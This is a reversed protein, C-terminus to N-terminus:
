PLDGPIMVAVNSDSGVYGTIQWIREELAGAYRLQADSMPDQNFPLAGIHLMNLRDVDLNGVLKGTPFRILMTEPVPQGALWMSVEKWRLGPMGNDMYVPLAQESPVDKSLMALVPRMDMPRWPENWRSARIAEVQQYASIFNGNISAVGNYWNWWDLVFQQEIELQLERAKFQWKVQQEPETGNMLEDHNRQEIFDAWMNSRWDCFSMAALYDVKGLEAILATWPGNSRLQRMLVRERLEGNTAGLESEADAIWPIINLGTSIGQSRMAEQAPGYEKLYKRDWYKTLQPYVRWFAATDAIPDGDILAKCHREMLGNFISSVDGSKYNVADVVDSVSFITDFDLLNSQNLSAQANAIMGIESNGFLKLSNHALANSDLKHGHQQGRTDMRQTTDQLQEMIGM